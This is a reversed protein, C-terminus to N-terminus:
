RGGRHVSGNRQWSWWDAHVCAFSCRHRRRRCCNRRETLLRLRSAHVCAERALARVCAPVHVSACAPRPPLAAQTGAWCCQPAVCARLRQRACTRACLMRARVMWLSLHCHLGSGAYGALPKPAFTVALGHRRAVAGLAEKALLLKDCAELAPDTTQLAGCRTAHQETRRRATTFLPQAVSRTSCGDGWTVCAHLLCPSPVWAAARWECPELAIEFQAPAAEAHYQLVGIGMQTLAAVMDDLVPPPQSAHHTSAACCPPASLSPLAARAAHHLLLPGASHVLLLCACCRTRETPASWCSPRCAFMRQTRLALMAHKSAVLCRASLCGAIRAARRM